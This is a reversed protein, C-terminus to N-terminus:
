KAGTRIQANLRASTQEILQYMKGNVAELKALASPWVMRSPNKSRMDGSARLARLMGDAQGNVTHRRTGTASRSYKYERTKRGNRDRNKAMDAMAVAPSMVWVSVISRGKKRLRTDVRLETTKAPMVAGWAMRGPIVKPEMGRIPATASIGKQVADEVPQGIQKANAKFTKILAPDIKRTERILFRWDTVYVSNQIDTQRVNIETAVFGGITKVIRGGM